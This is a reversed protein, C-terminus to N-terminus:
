KKSSKELEDRLKQDLKDFEEAAKKSFKSVGKTMKSLQGFGYDWSGAFDDCASRLGDHGIQGAEARALGKSANKMRGGSTELTRSMESVEDFAFRLFSM